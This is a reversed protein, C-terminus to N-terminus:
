VVSFVNECVLGRVPEKHMKLIGRGVLIDFVNRCQKLTIDFKIGADKVSLCEDPNRKFFEAMKFEATNVYRTM